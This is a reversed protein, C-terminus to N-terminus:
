LSFLTAKFVSFPVDILFMIIKEVVCIKLKVLIHDLEKEKM